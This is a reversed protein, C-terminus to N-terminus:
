PLANSSSFGFGELVRNIGTPNTDAALTELKSIASKLLGLNADKGSTIKATM